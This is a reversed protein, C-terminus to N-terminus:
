KNKLAKLRYLYYVIPLANINLLLYMIKEKKNLLCYINKDYKKQVKIDKIFMRLKKIKNHTSLNLEDRSYKIRILELLLKIKKAEYYNSLEKELKYNKLFLEIQKLIIICTNDFNSNYKKTASSLNVRYYYTAENFYFINNSNEFANINFVMDQMRNLGNVFKLENKKIFKSNYIKAWPVGVNTSSKLNTISTQCISSKILEIKDLDSFVHEGINFFRDDHIHKSDEFYTYFGSILIDYKDDAKDLFLEVTNDKLWDDGDVFMIWQSKAIKLGNNRAVSVGSNKQSIVTIRNDKKAYTKAIKLTNDKSEDDICIIEINKETQNICSLICKSIYNEVNYMPIIISVKSM